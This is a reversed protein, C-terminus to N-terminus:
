PASGTRVAEFRETLEASSSDLTTLSPFIALLADVMRAAEKGADSVEGVTLASLRSM